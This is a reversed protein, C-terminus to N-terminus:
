KHPAKASAAINNGATKLWGGAQKGYTAGMGYSVAAAPVTSLSAAGYSTAVGGLAIGGGIAAARQFLKSKVAKSMDSVLPAADSVVPIKEMGKAAVSLSESVTTIGVRFATQYNKGVFKIGKGTTKVVAREASGVAHGVARTDKAAVREVTKVSNVTKREVVKVEHKVAHVIKGFLSAQASGTTAVIGLTMVAAALFHSQKIM